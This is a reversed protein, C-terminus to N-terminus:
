GRNTVPFVRGTDAHGLAEQSGINLLNPHGVSGAPKFLLLDLSFTVQTAEAPQSQMPRYISLLVDRVADADLQSTATVRRQETLTFHPAFTDVTRAVRDRGIGRLEILDEPAALAVLLRGDDRLVRRFEDTNMRATISMVLSFSRDAWPIFRDANAVIWECGPYRRAAADVAPISIDVGHADFGTEGALSGLYFGEGCGADLVTDESSPGAIEAVAQLLPETVGLDHLRRRAAVAEATDGPNKSRREQPQLLNTYGSRAIDFSHGRACVRRRDERVLELHCDRVPCLLM